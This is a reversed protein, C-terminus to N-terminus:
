ATEICAALKGHHSRFSLLTRVSPLLLLLATQYTIDRGTCFIYVKWSDRDSDHQELHQHQVQQAVPAAAAPGASSAGGQQMVDLLDERSIEEMATTNKLL